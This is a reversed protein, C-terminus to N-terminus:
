NWEVNETEFKVLDNVHESKWFFWPRIRQFWQFLSFTRIFWAMLVLYHTNNHVWRNVVLSGDSKKIVVIRCCHLFIFAKKFFTRVIKKLHSRGLHWGVWLYKDCWVVIKRVWLTKRPFEFPCKFVSTSAWNFGGLCIQSYSKLSNKTEEISKATVSCLVKKSNYKQDCELSLHKIM